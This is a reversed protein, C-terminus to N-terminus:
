RQGAALSVVNQHNGVVSGVYRGWRALADKREELYEFRDYVAQVGGVTHNLCLEAVERRVGLMSLGSRMTRRLDHIVWPVMDDSLRQDLQRKPITWTDFGKKGKGFLFPIGPREKVQLLIEMAEDSLPVLFGGKRRNKIRERPLLIHREELDVERWMLSAIEAKRCGTLLCLKIVRGFDGDGAAHWVDRLEHRTLIRDRAREKANAFADIDTVPNATVPSDKQKLLTSYLKSLSSKARDASVEGCAEAIEDLVDRVMRNTVVNPALHHLPKWCIDLYRRENTFHARSIESERKKLHAAIIEGLTQPTPGKRAARAKQKAARRAEDQARQERKAADRKEREDRGEEAEDRVTEAKRRAKELDGKRDPSVGKLVLRRPEGRFQYKVIYSCAGSQQLRIGFGKTRSDWAFVDKKGAPVTMARAYGESLEPM